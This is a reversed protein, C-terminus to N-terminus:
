MKAVGDRRAEEVTIQGTLLLYLTWEAAPIVYKGAEWNQWARLTAFVTEAAETQTHGTAHRAAIIQNPDPSDMKKLGFKRQKV